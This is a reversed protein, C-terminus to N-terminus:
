AELEFIRNLNCSNPGQFKPSHSQHHNDIRASRLGGRTPIPPALDTAAFSEDGNSYDIDKVLLTDTQNVGTHNGSFITFHLDPSTPLNLPLYLRQKWMQTNYAKIESLQAKALLSDVLGAHANKLTKKVFKTILVNCKMNVDERLWLGNMPIGLGLEVAMITEGPLSGGITWRGKINLGFPAYVHTQLGDTLNHFCANYTARGSCLGGLLYNVKDTIRYWRCHYEEPTAHTPPKIPHRQEVLPNLDIISVHDYLSELVLQRTVGSPLATVTTFVTRKSM